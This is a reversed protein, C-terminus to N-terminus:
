KGGRLVYTISNMLQGTRILPKTGKFGNRKRARITKEDLPAFGEGTRIRNKVAAQAMLGTQHLAKDIHGKEFKGAQAAAKLLAAAKGEVSRVGPILFPRAPINRAPSGNEHIYGLGANGIPGDGRGDKTDPIGVLVRKGVMAEINAILAKADDRTVKVTM